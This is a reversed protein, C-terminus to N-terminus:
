ALHVAFLSGCCKRVIYSPRLLEYGSKFMLNHQSFFDVLTLKLDFARKAYDTIELESPIESPEYGLM